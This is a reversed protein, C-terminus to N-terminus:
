ENRAIDLVSVIIVTLVSVFTKLKARPTNVSAPTLTIKYGRGNVGNWIVTGVTVTVVGLLVLQAIDM